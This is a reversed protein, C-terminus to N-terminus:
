YLMRTSVKTADPRDYCTIGGITRYCFEPQAPVRAELEEDSLCWADGREARLTSCDQDTVLGVAHDALTKKTTKLSALGLGTSVLTEPGCAALLGVLGLACLIRTM